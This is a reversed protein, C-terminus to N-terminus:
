SYTCIWISFFNVQRDTSGGWFISRLIHTKQMYVSKKEIHACNIRPLNIHIHNTPNETFLKYLLNWWFRAFVDNFKTEKCWVKQILIKIIRLFECNKGMKVMKRSEKSLLGTEHQQYNFVRLLWMDLKALIKRIKTYFQIFITLIIWFHGNKKFLDFKSPSLCRIPM